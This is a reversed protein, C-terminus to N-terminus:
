LKRVGSLVSVLRIVPEITSYSEKKIEFVIVSTKLSKMEFSILDNSKSSRPFRWRREEKVFLICINLGSFCDSNSM